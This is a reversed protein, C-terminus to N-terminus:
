CCRGFEHAGLAAVKPVPPKPPSKDDCASLALALLLGAALPWPTRAPRMPGVGRWQLDACPVSTGECPRTPM